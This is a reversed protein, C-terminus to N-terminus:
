SQTLQKSRKQQKKENQNVIPFLFSIKGETEEGV